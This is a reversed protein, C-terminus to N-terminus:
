SNKCGLRARARALGGFKQAKSGEQSFKSRYRLPGCASCRLADILNRYFRPVVVKTFSAPFDDSVRFSRAPKQCCKLVLKAISAAFLRM